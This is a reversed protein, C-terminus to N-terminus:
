VCLVCLDCLLSRSASGFFGTMRLTTSRLVELRTPHSNTRLTLFSEAGGGGVSIPPGEVEGM